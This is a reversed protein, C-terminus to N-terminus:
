LLTPQYTGAIPLVKPQPRPIYLYILYLEQKRLTCDLLFFILLLYFNSSMKLIHPITPQSVAVM